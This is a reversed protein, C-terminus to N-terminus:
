RHKINSTQHKINLIYIDFYSKVSILLSRPLWSHYPDRCRISSTLVGRVVWGDIVQVNCYCFVSSESLPHEIFIYFCM